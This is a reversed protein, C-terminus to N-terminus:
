HTYICEDYCGIIYKDTLIIVVQRNQRKEQLARMKEGWLYYVSKVFFILTWVMYLVFHVHGKGEEWAKM